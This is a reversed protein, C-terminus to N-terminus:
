SSTITTSSAAHPPRGTALGRAAGWLRTTSDVWPPHARVEPQHLGTLLAVLTSKGSGPHGKWCSGSRLASACVALRAPVPRGAGNDRYRFVLDHAELVPATDGAGAAHGAPPRRSASSLQWAFRQGSGPAGPWDGTTKCGEYALLVGGLSM